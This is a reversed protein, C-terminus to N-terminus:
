LRGPARAPLLDRRLGLVLRGDTTADAVKMQTVSSARSSTAIAKAAGAFFDILTVPSMPADILAPLDSGFARRM